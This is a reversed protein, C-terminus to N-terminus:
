QEMLEAIKERNNIITEVVDKGERYSVGFKDAIERSAKVKLPYNTNDELVIRKCSKLDFWNITKMGSACSITIGAKCFAKEIANSTVSFNNEDSPYEKAILIVAEQLALALEQSVQQEKCFQIHNCITYVIDNELVHNLVQEIVNKSRPSLLSSSNAVSKIASKIKGM